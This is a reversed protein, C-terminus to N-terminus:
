RRLGTKTLKIVDSADALEM